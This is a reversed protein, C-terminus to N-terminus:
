NSSFVDTVDYFVHKVYGLCEMFILSREVVLSIFFIKKSKKLFGDDDSCPTRYMVTYKMNMFM